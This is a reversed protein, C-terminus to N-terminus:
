RTSLRKRLVTFYSFSLSSAYIFFITFYLFTAPRLFQLFNEGPNPRKIGANSFHQVRLALEHRLAESFMRQAAKTAGYVSETPLAVFGAQSSLLRAQDSYSLM